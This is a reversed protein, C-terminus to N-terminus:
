QFVCEEILESKVELKKIKRSLFEIEQEKQEDYEEQDKQKDQKDQMEKEFIDALTIVKGKAIALEIGWYDNYDVVEKEENEVQM